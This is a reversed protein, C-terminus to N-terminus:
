IHKKIWDCMIRMKLDHDLSIKNSVKQFELKINSYNREITEYKSILNEIFDLHNMDILFEGLGLEAYLNKIQPYNFLGITPKGIGISALNSHFRNAFIVECKSYIGFINRMGIAGNQYPTISIKKRLTEDSLEKLVKFILNFDKYIHTLFVINKNKDYILYNIFKSFSKIWGDLNDFRRNLMDGALNIGILNNQIEFENMEDNKIKIGSDPIVMVKNKFYDGYLTRLNDIAGDNRVSVFIRDSDTLYKLYNFFKTKSIKSFGQHIDVGLSFFIIPTQINELYEIPIDITTGTRSNEVWLEFYNGGGIIILDYENFRQVIESNFLKNGWFYERIEEEYIIYNENGFEKDFSNYLGQHNLNDGINGTFSALHLIQIKNLM